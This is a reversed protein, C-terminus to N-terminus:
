WDTQIELLGEKESSLESVPVGWPRYMADWGQNQSDGYTINYLKLKPEDQEKIGKKSSSCGQIEQKPKVFHRTNRPPSAHISEKVKESQKLSSITKGLSRLEIM